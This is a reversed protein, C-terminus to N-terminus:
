ELDVSDSIIDYFVNEPIIQIDYGDLQLKEAKKQKSSKGDKISKCYDNNGLILYNTKKTVNDANLGGLNAVVQMADRRLMKELVGTFVCVKGYLPHTVDFNSVKASIDSAKIGSKLKKISKLLEDVTGFQEQVEKIMLNYCAATSNVDVLARHSNECNISYYATLDSLRHHSFDPHLHRSLRMTDVFNNSLPALGYKESADYLFNIDFNVNHGILIADGIFSRFDSLVAVTLPASRLMDDSIGTLDTIFEDLYPENDSFDDPKILSSFTEIITNDQVKLAAIEIISDWDPSLGTTEIDVVCYNSPTDIISTGKFPREHKFKIIEGTLADYCASM